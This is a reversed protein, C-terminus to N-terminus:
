NAFWCLPDTYYFWNDCWNWIVDPKATEGAAKIAPASLVLALLVGGLLRRRM